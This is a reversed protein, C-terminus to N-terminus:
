LWWFDRNRNECGGFIVKGLIESGFFIVQVMLIHSHAGQSHFVKVNILNNKNQTHCDNLATNIKFTNLDM